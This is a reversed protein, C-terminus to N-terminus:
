AAKADAVLEVAAEQEKQVKARAAVRQEVTLVNALEPRSWHAITCSGDSFALFDSGAIAVDLDKFEYNKRPNVYFFPRYGKNLIESFKPAVRAWLGHDSARNPVTRGERIDMITKLFSDGVKHSEGTRLLLAFLTLLPPAEMWVNSSVILLSDGVNEVSNAVNYIASPDLGLTHEVQRIFDAINPALNAYNKILPNALLLRTRGSRAARMIPKGGKVTKKGSDEETIALDIETNSTVSFGYLAGARKNLFGFMVGSLYQESYALDNQVKNDRSVFAACFGSNAYIPLASTVTHKNWDITIKGGSPVVAGGVTILNAEHAQIKPKDSM